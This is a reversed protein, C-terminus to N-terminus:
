AVSLTGSSETALACIWINYAATTGWRMHSGEALVKLYMAQKYITSGAESDVPVSGGRVKAPLQEYLTANGNATFRFFV